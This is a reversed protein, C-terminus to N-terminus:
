VLDSEEESEDSDAIADSTKRAKGAGKLYLTALGSDPTPTEYDFGMEKAIELMADYAKDQFAERHESPVNIQPRTSRTSEKVVGNEFMKEYAEQTLYGNEVLFQAEKKSIGM